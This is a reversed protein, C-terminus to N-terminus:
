FSKMFGDEGALSSEVSSVEINSPIILFVRDAVKKIDGDLAYTLGSCFDLIRKSVGPEVSELNVIVPIDNKVNDAIVQIEEFERPEAVFVRNKQAGKATSLLSVKRRQAKKSSLKERDRTRDELMSKKEWVPTKGEVELDEDEALGFFSMTKKFFSNM